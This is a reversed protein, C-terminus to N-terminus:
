RLAKVVVSGHARSLSHLRTHRKYMRSSPFEQCSVCTFTSTCPRTATQSVISSHQSWSASARSEAEHTTSLTASCDRKSGVGTVVMLILERTLSVGCLSDLMYFAWCVTHLNCNDWSTHIEEVDESYKASPHIVIVNHDYPNGSKAWLKNGHQRPPQKIWYISFLKGCIYLLKLIDPCQFNTNNDPKHSKKTMCTVRRGHLYLLKDRWFM